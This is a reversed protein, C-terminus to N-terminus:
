YRFKVLIIHCSTHLTKLYRLETKNYTKMTYILQLIYQHITNCALSGYRGHLNDFIIFKIRKAM